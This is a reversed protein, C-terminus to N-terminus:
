KRKKRRYLRLFVYVLALIVSGLITLIIVHYKEYFDEMYLAPEKIADLLTPEIETINLEEDIESIVDGTFGGGGSSAPPTIQAECLSLNEYDYITVNEFLLEIESCLNNELRYYTLPIEPEIETANTYTIFGQVLNNDIPFDSSSPNGTQTNHLNLKAKVSVLGNNNYEDTVPIEDMKFMKWSNESVHGIHRITRIDNEYLCVAVVYNAEPIEQLPIDQSPIDEVYFGDECVFYVEETNAPTLKHNFNALQYNEGDLNFSYASNGGTSFDIVRSLVSEFLGNNKNKLQIEYDYEALTPNTSGMPIVGVWQKIFITANEGDPINFDGNLYINKNYNYDYTQFTCSGSCVFKHFWYFPVNSGDLVLNSQLTEDYEVGQYVISQLSSFYVGLVALAILSIILIPILKKKKM